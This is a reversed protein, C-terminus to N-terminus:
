NGDAAARLDRMHAVLAAAKAEDIGKSEYAPMYPPKEGKFGKLIVEIHHDDSKAPDFAKTADAKHCAFCTNKKYMAAAEDQTATVPPAKTTAFVIMFVPVAFATTVFAKLLKKNM